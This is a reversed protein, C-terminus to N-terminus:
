IARYEFHYVMPSKNCKFVFIDDTRKAMSEKTFKSQLANLFNIIRYMTIINSEVFCVVGM